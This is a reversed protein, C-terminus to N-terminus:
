DSNDDHYRENITQEHQYRDDSFDHQRVQREINLDTMNRGDVWWDVVSYDGLVQWELSKDNDVHTFHRSAQIMRTNATKQESLASMNEKTMYKMVYMVTQRAGQEHGSVMAGNPERFDPSATVTIPQYDVMYGLGCEYANRKLWTKETWQRPRRNSRKANREDWGGRLSWQVIVHAHYSGSKHTEFVRVYPMDDHANVRRMRKFLLSLGKALSDLTTRKAHAEPRATITMFSMSLELEPRNIYSIIRKIWVARNVYACYPCSWQRCRLRTLMNAGHEDTARALKKVRQCYKM